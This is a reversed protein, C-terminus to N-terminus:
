ALFYSYSHLFLFTIVYLFYRNCSTCISSILGAVYVRILLKESSALTILSTLAGSGIFDQHSEALFSCLGFFNIEINYIFSYHHFFKRHGALDQLVILSWCSVDDDQSNLCAIIKRTIGSHFM